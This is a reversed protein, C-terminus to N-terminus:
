EVKLMIVAVATKILLAALTLSATSRVLRKTVLKVKEDERIGLRLSTIKKFNIKLCIRIDQVRFVKLNENTKSM